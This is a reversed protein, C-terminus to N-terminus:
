ISRFTFHFSLFAVTITLIKSLETQTHNCVVLSRETVHQHDDDRHHHHQEEEDHDEGGHEEEVLLAHYLIQGLAHEVGGDVHVVAVEHGSFTVKSCLKLHPESARRSTDLLSVGCHM